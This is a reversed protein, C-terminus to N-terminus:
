LGGALRRSRRALGAVAQRDGSWRGEPAGAGDGRTRGDGGSGGARHGDRDGAPRCGRLLDQLDSVREDRAGCPERGAASRARLPVARAERRKSRRDPIPRPRQRHRHRLGPRDLHGRPSLVPACIPQRRKPHRRLLGLTWQGSGRNDLNIRTSGWDRVELQTPSGTVVSPTEGALSLSSGQGTTIQYRPGPGVNPMTASGDEFAQHLQQFDVGGVALSATANEVDMAAGGREPDLKASSSTLYRITLHQNWDNGALAGLEALDVSQADTVFLHAPQGHHRAADAIAAITVEAPHGHAGNASIVYAEARFSRYFAELSNRAIPRAYFDELNGNKLLEQAWQKLTAKIHATRGVPRLSSPSRNTPRYHNTPRSPRMWVRVQTYEYFRNVPNLRKIEKKLKGWIPPTKFENADLAPEWATAKDEFAAGATKLRRSIQNRLKQPDISAATLIGALISSAASQLRPDDSLAYPFDVSGPFGLVAHLGYDARAVDNIKAAIPLLQSNRLSGHHPVKFLRFAPQAASRGAVQLFPTILSGVSDGTFVMGSEHALLLSNQNEASSDVSWDVEAMASTRRYTLIQEPGGFVFGALPSGPEAKFGRGTLTKLVKKADRDTTAPAFLPGNFVLPYKDTPENTPEPALFDEFLRLLGGYHDEHWHSIFVAEPQIPLGPRVIESVGKISAKLYEYYPAEPGNVFKEMPGGDILYFKSGEELIFADGRGAYLVHLYTAM